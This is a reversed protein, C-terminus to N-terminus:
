PGNKEWQTKLTGHPHPNKKKLKKSQERMIVDPEWIGLRGNQVMQIASGANKRRLKLAHWACSAAPCCRSGSPESRDSVPMYPSTITGERALRANTCRAQGWPRPQHKVSWRSNIQPLSILINQVAASVKWKYIFTFFPICRIAGQSLGLALSMKWLATTDSRLTGKPDGLLHNSNNIHVSSSTPLTLVAKM